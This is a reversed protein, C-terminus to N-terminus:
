NTLKAHPEINLVCLENSRRSQNVSKDRTIQYVNDIEPYILYKDPDEKDQEDQPM